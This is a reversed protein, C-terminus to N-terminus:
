KMQVADDHLRVDRVSGSLHTDRQSILAIIRWSYPTVLVSYTCTGSHGRLGGVVM